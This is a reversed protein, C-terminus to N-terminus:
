RIILDLLGVSLQSELVVRVLVRLRAGLLPELLYGLSVLNETIRSFSCNKILKTIVTIYNVLRTLSTSSSMRLIPEVPISMKM